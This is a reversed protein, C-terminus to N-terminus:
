GPGMLGVRFRHSVISCLDMLTMETEAAALGDIYLMTLGHALSWATITTELIAAEDDTGFSFAAESAGRRVADSLVARSSAAATAVRQASADGGGLLTPGFMLRYHAPNAEGFGAYAAGIAALASGADDALGAAALMRARLADFGSVAIEALLERKDAFHFYPANHSVNARRAVERLSFDWHQAESLLKIAADVLSGRLDGHHYTGRGPKAVEAM